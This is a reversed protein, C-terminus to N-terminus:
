SGYSNDSFLKTKNRQGSSQIPIYSIVGNIRQELDTGCSTCRYQNTCVSIFISHETCSPCLGNVIETSMSIGRGFLDKKYM